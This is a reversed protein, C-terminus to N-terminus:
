NDEADQAMQRYFQKMHEKRVIARSPQDSALGARASQWPMEEHTMRELAYATEVGYVAMVEDLHDTIVKPLDPDPPHDAIPNWQYGRFRSYQGPEVPGHVWAQMEEPFLDCDKLALFWAQAYYMIKQLKLNTILEGREHCFRLIYDAVKSATTSAM